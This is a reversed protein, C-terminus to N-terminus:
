NSTFLEDNIALALRDEKQFHLKIRSKPIVNEDAEIVDYESSGEILRHTTGNTANSHLVIAYM